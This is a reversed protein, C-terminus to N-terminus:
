EQICRVGYGRQKYSNYGADHHSWHNQSVLSYGTSGSSTSGWICIESNESSMGVGSRYGNLPYHARPDGSKGPNASIYFYYLGGSSVWNKKLYEATNPNALLFNDWTGARPVTWGPPCPDFIGKRYDINNIAEPNNWPRSYGSVYPNSILWDYNLHSWGDTDRVYTELYFTFPSNIAEDMSSTRDSDHIIVSGPTPSFCASTGIGGIGYLQTANRPFPDKRGHQYQLGVVKAFGEAPDSTIAGLNRDMLYKNEYVGGERWLITTGKDIYRHVEGGTVEYIFKGDVWDKGAQEDPAYETVWLHWSWLYPPDPNEATAKERVGILINGPVDGKTRVYLYGKDDATEDIVVTGIDSIELAEENCFSIVKSTQDQWIVEAELDGLASFDPIKETAFQTWYKYMWAMPIAYLSSNYGKAAPNIIYCNAPELVHKRVKDIRSDDTASYSKLVISLTYSNNEELEFNDTMNKGPYFRFSLLSGAKDYGLLEIYTAKAPAITNKTKSESSSLGQAPTQMNRPIYFTHSIQYADPDDPNQSPDLGESSQYKIPNESYDIIYDVYEVPKNHPYYYYEKPVNHLQISYIEAGNLIVSNTFNFTLRVLNRKLRCVIPSSADSTTNWKIDFSGHVLYGTETETPDLEVNLRTEHQAYLKELSAFNDVSFLTSQELDKDLSAFVIGKYIEDSNQDPLFILVDEPSDYYRPEGILRGDADYEIFWFATVETEGEAKSAVPGVGYGLEMDQVNLSVPVSVSRLEGKEIDPEVAEVCSALAACAMLVLIGLRKNM